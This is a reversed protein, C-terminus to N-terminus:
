HHEMVGAPLIVCKIVLDVCAPGCLISFLKLLSIDALIISSILQKASYGCAPSPTYVSKRGLWQGWLEPGDSATQRLPAVVTSTNRLNTKQIM